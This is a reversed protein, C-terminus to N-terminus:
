CREVQLLLMIVILMYVATLWGSWDIGVRKSKPKAVQSEEIARLKARLRADRIAASQCYERVAADDQETWKTM